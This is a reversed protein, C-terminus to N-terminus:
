EINTRCLPCCITEERTKKLDFYCKCCMIHNCVLTKNKEEVGNHDEIECIILEDLCICCKDQDEIITGDSILQTKKDERLEKREEDFVMINGERREDLCTSCIWDDYYGEGEDIGCDDPNHFYVAKCVYCEEIPAIIQKGAVGKSGTYDGIEYRCDEYNIRKNFRNDQKLYAYVKRLSDYFEDCSINQETYEDQNFYM